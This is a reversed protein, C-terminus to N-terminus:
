HMTTLRWQGGDLWLIGLFVNSDFSRYATKWNDKNQLRRCGYSACEKSVGAQKAIAHPKAACTTHQEPLWGIRGAVYKYIL